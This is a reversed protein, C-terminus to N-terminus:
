CKKKHELTLRELLRNIHRGDRVVFLEHNVRHIESENLLYLMYIIKKKKLIYPMISIAM